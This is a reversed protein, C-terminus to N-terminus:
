VRLAPLKHGVISTLCWFLCSALMVFQRINLMTWQTGQRYRRSMFAIERAFMTAKAPIGLSEKTTCKVSKPFALLMIM